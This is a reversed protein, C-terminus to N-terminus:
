GQKDARKDEVSVKNWDAKMVESLKNYVETQQEKPLKAFTQEAQVLVPASATSQFRRGSLQATRVAANRLM